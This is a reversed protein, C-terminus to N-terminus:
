HSGGARAAGSARAVDALAREADALAEASTSPQSRLTELRHRFQAEAEDLRGLRQLAQALIRQSTTAWIGEPEDTARWAALAGEAERVAEEPQDLDLHLRAIWTRAQLDLAADPWGRTALLERVEGLLELAETPRGLKSQLLALNYLTKPAMPMPMGNLRLLRVAQEYRPLAAEPEGLRNLTRGLNHFHYIDLPHVAAEGLRLCGETAEELLRRATALNGRRMHVFALNGTARHVRPHEPGKADIEISQAEEMLRQAEESDRPLVALGLNLLTAFLSPHRAGYLERKMAVVERLLVEAEGHRDQQMLFHGFNNLTTALIPHPAAYRLRQRDVASRWLDEARDPETQSAVVARFAELRDLRADNQSAMERAKEFSEAAENWRALELSLHGRVEYVIALTDREGSAQALEEASRIVAEAAPYDALYVENMALIARYRAERGPDRDDRETELHVAERLAKQAERYRGLDSLVDGLLHAVAAVDAPDAKIDPRRYLQLSERAHRRAETLLGLSEYTSALVYSFRALLDPQNQLESRISDGASDLLQRATVRGGVARDPDPLEFVETLWRSVTEARQGADLARNREELIRNQQVLLIGLSGLLVVLVATAASLALKQRRILKGLRYGLSAPRAAIPRGQLHREVDQALDAATGYRRAPDKALAKLVVADLDGRLQQGLRRRDPGDAPSATGAVGSLVRSSPTPTDRHCIADVASALDKGDLRYPLDGTLLLHLLLGLSYVDSATTIPLGSVQEPSAYELTLPSRGEGTLATGQLGETGLIKAIGFDLLKPVGARTVLINSPKLDRHVVLSQHAFQVAGCVDLFLRLRGEIDLQALDCYRDLPEGEVLEMVLFPHGGPTAGGDLLQAINPHELSALIRRERHFRQVREESPRGARILKLAVTKSFDVDARQALYVDGMGGSGLTGLIRYNAVRQGTQVDDPDRLGGELRFVPAELFRLESDSDRLLTEVQHRLEPDDGCARELFAPRDEVPVEYVDALVRRVRRWQAAEAATGSTGRDDPKPFTVTPKPPSQSM